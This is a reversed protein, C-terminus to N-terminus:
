VPAAAAVAARELEQLSEDIGGAITEVDEM